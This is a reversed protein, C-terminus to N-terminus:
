GHKIVLPSCILVEVMTGAQFSAVVRSQRRQELKVAQLFSQIHIGALFQQVM